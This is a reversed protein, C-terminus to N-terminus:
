LINIKKIARGNRRAEYLENLTPQIPQMNSAIKLLKPQPAGLLSINPLRPAFFTFISALFVAQRSHPKIFQDMLDLISCQFIIHFINKDNLLEFGFHGSSPVTSSFCCTLPEYKCVTYKYETVKTGFHYADSDYM